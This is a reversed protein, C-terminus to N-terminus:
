GAAVAAFIDAHREVNDPGVDYALSIGPLSHRLLFAVLREADDESPPPSTLAELLLRPTDFASEVDRTLGLGRYPGHGFTVVPRRYFLAEYGTTSNVTAVAASRRLVVHAHTSPDVVVVEPRRKLMRVLRAPPLSGVEFPHEKVALRYGYPLSAAIHEILAIQDEWQPARISIQADFGAHIPFFVFPEEPLGRYLPQLVTKM